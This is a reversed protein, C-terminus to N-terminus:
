IRRPFTQYKRKTQKVRKARKARKSRKSHKKTLKGGYLYRVKKTAEELVKDRKEETRPTITDDYNKQSASFCTGDIIYKKFCEPASFFSFSEMFKLLNNGRVTCFRVNNIIEPDDSDPLSFFRHNFIMSRKLNLIIKDIRSRQFEYYKKLEEFSQTVKPNYKAEDEETDQYDPSVSSIRVPPAMITYKHTGNSDYIYLDVSDCDVNTSIVSYNKSLLETINEKIYTQQSGHSKDSYETYDERFESDIKETFNTLTADLNESTTNSLLNNLYLVSSCDFPSDLRSGRLTFSDISCPFNILTLPEAKCIETTIEAIQKKDQRANITMKSGDIREVDFPKSIDVSDFNIHCNQCVEGHANIVMLMKQIKKKEKESLDDLNGSPKHYFAKDDGVDTLEQHGRKRKKSLITSNDDFIDSVVVDGVGINGFNHGVGVDIDGFGDNFIFDFDDVPIM